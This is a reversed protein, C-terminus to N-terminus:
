SSANCNKSHEVTVTILVATDIIEVKIYSCHLSACHHLKLKAYVPFAYVGNRKELMKGCEGHSSLKGREGLGGGM